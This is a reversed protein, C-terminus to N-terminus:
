VTGKKQKKKKEPVNKQRKTSALYIYKMEIKHLIARNLDKGIDDNEQYGDSCGYNTTM